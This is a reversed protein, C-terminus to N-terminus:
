FCKRRNRFSVFSFTRSSQVRETKYLLIYIPRIKLIQNEIRILSVKPKEKHRRKDVHLTRTDHQQNNTESILPRCISNAKSQIDRESGRSIKQFIEFWHNCCTQQKYKHNIPLLMMRLDECNHQIISRNAGAVFPCVGGTASM